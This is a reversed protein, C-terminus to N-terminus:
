RMYFLCVLARSIYQGVMEEWLSTTLATNMSSFVRIIQASPRVYLLFDTNDYLYVSFDLFLWSCFDCGVESVLLFSFVYFHCLNIHEYTVFFHVILVFVFERKGLCPSIYLLFVIFGSM